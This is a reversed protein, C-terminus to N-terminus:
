KVQKKKRRWEGLAVVVFAVISLKFSLQWLNGIEVKFIWILLQISLATVPVLMAFIVICACVKKIIERM